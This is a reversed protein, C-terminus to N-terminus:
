ENNKDMMEVLRARLETFVGKHTYRKGTSNAELEAEKLKFYIDNEFQKSHESRSIDAFDDAAKRNHSM